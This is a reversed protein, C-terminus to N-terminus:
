DEYNDAIMRDLIRVGWGTAWTPELPNDNGPKWAMGAIDLHAWARGEDVFRQLFQAATISGANGANGINRMDAFESDIQKDYGPGLPLRWVPEGEAKGAATLKAVLDDSNSFVGAHENGLSIIIAGTLTALDVMAKPNFKKQAYWLVDCLVLRGEADTNQIEITKGAAMRVIDGPQPKKRVGTIVSISQPQGNRIIRLKVERNPPTERVFRSFSEMGEVRQGNYDLIIDGSKLGAKAAPSDEQVMTLEIGRAEQLKLAKAREADVDQFGVGFYSTPPAGQWIMTGQQPSPAPATQAIALGIGLAAVPLGRRLNMWQM